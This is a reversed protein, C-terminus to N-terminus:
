IHVGAIMCRVSGGASEITPVALPLLAHTQEIKGKQESTLAEYATQSLALLLTDGELEIANGCFQSIQEMSLEIISLGAQQFHQQLKPKDEESVMDMCIMVFHRTMCMLVNTHYVAVGNEDAADFLVGDYGIHACLKDLLVQDCRKSRAAYAVRNVHDFVVAGTGELFLGQEAYGRYDVLDTFNYEKKIFDIIDQRYENRRNEAYMPYSILSGQHHTSFWNNPFVSDPTLTKKDEFLHVQVGSQRLKSVARTVEQYADRASDLSLCTKQFANDQMTQTNSQFHHPRVMVIAEPAQNYLHSNVVKSHSM